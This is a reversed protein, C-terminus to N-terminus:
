GSVLSNLLVNHSYNLKYQKDIISSCSYSYSYIYIHIIGRAKDAEKEILENFHNIKQEYTLKNEM